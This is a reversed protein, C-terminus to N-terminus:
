GDKLVNRVLIYILSLFLGVIFGLIGFKLPSNSIVIPKSAQDLIPDFDLKLDKAETILKNLSDIEKQIVTVGSYFLEEPENIMFLSRDELKQQLIPDKINLENAISLNKEYKDKETLILSLIENRIDIQADQFTYLVYENLFEDGKLEKPFNLYYKNEIIKNKNKEQFFKKEKFFYDKASIENERLFTKFSNIKNNQKVFQDLNDFSTLKQQFEGEFLLAFTASQQQQQQQQQQQKIFGEFKVFLTSPINKLVITTQFQKPKLFINLYALVSFILSFSLILFKEKWLKRVVEGLDIEDIEIIQDNPKM